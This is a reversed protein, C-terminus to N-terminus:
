APTVRVSQAILMAPGPTEMFAVDCADRGVAIMAMADSNGMGTADVMHWDGELWVQAVAHFDPPTVDPGYVSAYRAPIGAARVLACVMHVYDRCVGERAAFTDLVTTAPGSAEPVYSMEAQVWDRIAAVRAGGELHGFRRSVFAPFMDSQCYRSPRLYGIAESPLTHTPAASLYSIDTNCRTVDVRATYRLSLNENPLHAWIRQGVGSEGQIRTVTAGAIDIFQSQIIQGPYHAAEITLLATPDGFVQYQMAIDIDIQM